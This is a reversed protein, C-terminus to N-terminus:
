AKGQENKKKIQPHRPHTFVFRAGQTYNEDVWIDGGLLNITLKCISLGLGTGQAYEDLKEFREFVQKQKELPIGIGTDTVSFIVQDNPADERISLTITGEDPTFKVANTMLNILVQQLRQIDTILEYSTFPADLVFSLNKKRAQRTTSIVNNSLAIIECPVLNFTLRDTELRSIDLIDNILRLLLDSNTQIMESYSERDEDTTSEDILISSFGVIANLPTRIEHSMNALFASKLRDSEEAKEKAARLEQEREKNKTVDETRVVVGTLKNENDFVPTALMSSFRHDPLEITTEVSKGTAIAEKAPCFDCVDDFGYLARYCEIGQTQVAQRHLNGGTSDNYWKIKYDPTIFRIEARLNNLIITNNAESEELAEKLKKVGFFYYFVVLYGLLLLGLLSVIAILPYNYRETSLAPNRVEHPQPLDSENIGAKTIQKYDFVYKNEIYEPRISDIPSSYDVCELAMLALGKGTSQHLPMYGGLAGHEIGTSTLTFVPVKKNRGILNFLVSPTFYNNNSDISWMGVLLATNAPLDVIQKVISSLPTIRGDLLLLNLEPYNYMQEKVQTQLSVGDCSNDSLFAIQEVMPYLQRILQVNKDVDYEYFVGGVINDQRLSDQVDISEPEWTSLDEDADPLKIAHRSVMGCLVPVTPDIISENQSIYASLAEQGLILILSPRNEGQYKLLIDQMLGTWKHAESFSKCNMNEILTSHQGGLAKYEDVFESIYNTIGSTESNNSSIILISGSPSQALVRGAPLFMISLFLLGTLIYFRKLNFCAVRDEM